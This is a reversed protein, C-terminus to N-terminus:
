ACPFLCAAHKILLAPPDICLLSLTAEDLLWEILSVQCCHLQLQVSMLMPVRTRLTVAVFFNLLSPLFM